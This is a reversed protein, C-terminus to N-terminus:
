QDMLSVWNNKWRYAFCAMSRLDNSSLCAWFSTCQGRVENELSDWCYHNVSGGPMHLTAYWNWGRGITHDLIANLTYLSSSFLRGLALLPWCDRLAKPPQPRSPASPSPSSERPVPCISTRVNLHESTRVSTWDSPRVSIGEEIRYSMAGKLDAAWFSLLDNELSDWCYHNVSGGPTYLTINWTWGTRLYSGFNCQSNHLNCWARQLDEGYSLYIASKFVSILM